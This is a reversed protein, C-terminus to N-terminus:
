QSLPKRIEDQEVSIRELAGQTVSSKVCLDLHIMERKLSKLAEGNGVPYSLPKKLLYILEEM